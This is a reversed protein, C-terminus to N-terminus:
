VGEPEVNHTALRARDAAARPSLDGMRVGAWAFLGRPLNYWRAKASADNFDFVAQSRQADNLTVLFANAAAVARPTTDGAVPVGTAAIPSGAPGAAPSPSSAAVPSAAPSAGAAAGSAPSSAAAATPRAAAAPASTAAVNAATPQDTPPVGAQQAACGALLTAAMFFGVLRTKPCM